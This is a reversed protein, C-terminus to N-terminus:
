ATPTAPRNATARLPHAAAPGRDDRRYVRGLAAGIGARYVAGSVPRCRALAARAANAGCAGHVSGGPHASAGALFLRDIPTDARGLGPVPRFVLQQHPAATGAQIAGGHLSPNERELADPGAVYRGVVLNGFGPAHRELVDEIRRAHDDIEAASWRDRQPVHTYAWLAETGAPSRTPDATTMQGTLLFPRGPRTGTALEYAYRSLDDLDCDLHVTGARRAADATWPVPGSLAWDVKVTGNDWQFGRLDALLRAPLHGAGVLHEYLGPAPVDCLVARRARVRRGDVCSVGVARGGAVLVQDVPSGCRVEGGFRRVLADTIRGAGGVPVPFGYQQGLMALLWGFMGSSTQEPGLDAHLALGGVLIRAGEGAFSERGLARVPLVLLRALRLLDAAPLARALRLGPRVPPFPRMMTELLPESLRCWQEYLALWRDGDGAAFSEMSAATVAPDRSLTVARDDPLVHTVVDPAHTWALGHEELRLGRLVPSAAAMPYFASCLDTLYGPATLEASRVAGGPSDAAELVLVEWGADALLAAAVLGNHGAGVVVADVTETSM